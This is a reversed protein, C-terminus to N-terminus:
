KAGMWSGTACYSRVLIVYSYSLDYNFSSSVTLVIFIFAGCFDALRSMFLSLM